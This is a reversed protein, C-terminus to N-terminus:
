REARRRAEGDEFRRIMACRRGRSGGSCAADMVAMRLINAPPRRLGSRLQGTSDNEAGVADMQIEGWAQGWISSIIDSGHLQIQSV